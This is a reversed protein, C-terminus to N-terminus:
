KMKLDKFYKQQNINWIKRGGLLNFFLKDSKGKGFHRTRRVKTNVAKQISRLIEAKDYGCHIIETSIARGNQRTGINVTPIGYYPAERIGASSNGMIFSANKLLTLFYEFRLSEFIRIKGNGALRRYANLIFDSGHDSNPYVVLYNRGSETIAEVLNRAQYDINLVETTVPHFSLIGYDDFTIDYHKKAKALSPLNSNEMIDIDPSGIVFISHKEEGMQILRKRASQNSVFHIHSMKSVSHRILEDVTGSVEGGEVHAVLINNLAGVVAGALAEVRDGHVIILDPKKMNVYDSFGGITKALINDMRDHDNQNIFKYINRYGSRIIENVTTGYRVNMHMGTAFIHVDFKSSSALIRILSKQKGFDARTGTLFVIKKKLM